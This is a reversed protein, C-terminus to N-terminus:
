WGGGTGQESKEQVVHVPDYQGGWHLLRSNQLITLLEDGEALVLQQCGRVRELLGHLRYCM